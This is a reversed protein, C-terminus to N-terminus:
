PRTRTFQIQPPRAEQMNTETDGRFSSEPSTRSLLVSEGARSVPASGPNEAIMDFREFSHPANLTAFAQKLM